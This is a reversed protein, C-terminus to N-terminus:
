EKLLSQMTKDQSESIIEELDISVKEYYNLYSVEDGKINKEKLHIECPNNHLEEFCSNLEKTINRFSDNKSLLYQEQLQQQKKILKNFTKFIEFIENTLNEHKNIILESNDRNAKESKNKLEVMESYRENQKKLVIYVFVVLLIDFIFTAWDMNFNGNEKKEIIYTILDILDKTNILFIVWINKTIINVIKM